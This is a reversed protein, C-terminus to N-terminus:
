DDLDTLTRLEDLVSERWKLQQIMTGDSHRKGTDLLTAFPKGKQTPMWIKGEKIQLGKAALLRNVEKPGSLKLREAIQTPTFIYQQDPTKLEIQLLKLPSVNHLRKMANDASIIAANGELGATLAISHLAAFERSTFENPLLNPIVQQPQSYQGTKRITPLVEEFVWKEFEQATPMQSSVILRYLDPETLFRADQTRGLSDVIPYRKTVGRCHDGMAKSANAYGLIDCVDKGCFLPTGDSDIITRVQNQNFNFVTLEKM